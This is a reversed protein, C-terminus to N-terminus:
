DGNNSEDPPAYKQILTEIEDAHHRHVFGDILPFSLLPCGPKAFVRHQGRLRILQWGARELRKLIESFPVLERDDPRDEPM